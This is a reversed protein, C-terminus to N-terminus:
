ANPYRTYFADPRTAADIVAWLWVGAQLFLGIVMLDLPFGVVVLALGTWFKAKSRQYTYLWTWFSLFVALLVAATKSRPSGTATGCTPCVVATAVLGHGCSPCFRSGPPAPPAGFRGTPRDVSQGVPPAAPMPPVAGAVPQPEPLPRSSPADWPQTM